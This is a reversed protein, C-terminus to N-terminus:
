VLCAKKLEPNSAELQDFLSFVNKVQRRKDRREASKYYKKQRKTRTPLMRWDQDMIVKAKDHEKVYNLIKELSHTGKVDQQRHFSGHTLEEFSKDKDYVNRHYLIYERNDALFIKWFGVKTRIYAVRNDFQRIELDHYGKGEFFKLWLKLYRNDNTCCACPQYESDILKSYSVMMRNKFKIRKSYPCAETHYVAHKKNTALSLVYEM